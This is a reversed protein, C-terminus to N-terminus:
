TVTILHKIFNASKELSLYENYYVSPSYEAYNSVMSKMEELFNYRTALRGTKENIYKERWFNTTDLVLIPCNCALAEPIVRPCSDRDTCCIIAIKSRAYYYPINKRPIWNTFKVNPHRQRLDKSVIGIQVLVLNKPFIPLIFNHGKIGKKHENSCFIVDFDKKAQQPKFINDAAPKIFLEVRATPLREKVEKLQSQTDVLILDYNRFNSQPVHRCGAGYYIKYAKPFSSLIHDYQSFGGRAFIVNPQFKLKASKLNPIWREIFNNKYKVKRKGGWYWIEGFSDKSLLYALQTWMDDCEEINEFMIQKPDRDTPM